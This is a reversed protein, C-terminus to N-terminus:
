SANYGAKSKPSNHRHLLEFFNKLAHRAPSSPTGGDLAVRSPLIRTLGAGRSPGCSTRVVIAIHAGEPTTLKATESNLRFSNQRRYTLVSQASNRIAAM